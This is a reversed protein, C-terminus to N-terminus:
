GTLRSGVLWETATREPAQEGARLRALRGVERFGMETLAAMLPTSEAALAVLRTDAAHAVAARLLSRADDLQGAATVLPGLHYGRKAPRLFVYGRLEGADTTAYAAADERRRLSELYEKRGYGVAGADMAGLDLMHAAQLPEVGAAGGEVAAPAREMVLTERMRVFGMKELIRSEDETAEIDVRLVGAKQFKEVAHGYLALTLSASLRPTTVLPGIIGHEFHRMMTVAGVIGDPARLVLGAGGELKLFREYEDGAVNRGEAEVLARLEPLDEPGLPWM